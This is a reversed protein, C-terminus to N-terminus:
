ATVKSKLDVFRLGGFGVPPSLCFAPDRLAIRLVRQSGNWKKGIIRREVRAGGIIDRLWTKCKAVRDDLSTIKARQKRRKRKRLGWFCLYLQRPRLRMICLDIQREALRDNLRRQLQRLADRRKQRQRRTRSRGYVVQMARRESIARGHGSRSIEPVSWHAFDDMSYSIFIDAYELSNKILTVGSCVCRFLRWLKKPCDNGVLERQHQEQLLNSV